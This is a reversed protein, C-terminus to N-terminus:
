DIETLSVTYTGTAKGVGDVAILYEGGGGADVDVTIRSNLNSKSIDDNYYSSCIVKDETEGHPRVTNCIQRMTYGRKNLLTFNDPNIYLEDYYAVTKDSAPTPNAFRRELNDYFKIVSLEPDHLGDGTVTFRYKQDEELLAMFWDADNTSEINGTGDLDVAVRGTVNTSTFDGMNQPMYPDRFDAETTIDVIRLTYTGSSSEDGSVWVIYNDSDASDAILFETRAGNVPGGAVNTVNWSANFAGVPTHDGYGNLREVSGVPYGSSDNRLEIILKGPFTGGYSIDHGGHGLVEARYVKNGGDLEVRFGDGGTSSGDASTLRGTVFCDGVVVVGTTTNNSPLDGNTPESVCATLIISGNVQIQLSSIDTVWAGGSRLYSDNAISWGPAASMESNSTVTTFSFNAPNGNGASNSIMVAYTTNPNLTAGSPATFPNVAGSTFSSPNTMSYIATNPTGDANVSFIRVLVNVNGSANNVHLGVSELQYGSLNSGTTFNQSLRSSISGTVTLNINSVLVGGTAPATELVQVADSTLTATYGDDDTFTVKVKLSNGEDDDGVTYTQATAGNIETDAGDADRVWQYTYGPNTLGNTDSIDSTDATLVEDVEPTGTIEPQGTPLANPPRNIFGTAASTLTEVTSGDDTFTVTVKITHNLDDLTLEYTSGTAGSINADATGDNRIWQYAFTAGTLGDDDAINSTDATLTEGVTETGSITPLGTPASNSRTTSAGAEGAVVAGWPSPDGEDFRAKVRFHYTEGADLGTVTHTNPTLYANGESANYRPWNDTDDTWSLRYNHFDHPYPDWSVDIEGAADGTEVTLGTPAPAAMTAASVVSSWQSPDAGDFRARIRVEYNKSHLLGTITHSTGTPFANGTTDTYTKWGQGNVRWSLRYDDAGDPHADWTVDLEGLNSGANVTLGTVASTQASAGPATTLTMAALVAFVAVSLLASLAVWKTRNIQKLRTM